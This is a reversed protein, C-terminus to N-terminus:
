LKKQYKSEKKILYNGVFESTSLSSGARYTQIPHPHVLTKYSSSRIQTPSLFNFSSSSPIKPVNEPKQSSGYIIYINDGDM